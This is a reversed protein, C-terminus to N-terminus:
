RCIGARIFSSSLPIGNLRSSRASFEASYYDRVDIAIQPDNGLHAFIEAFIKERLRTTAIIDSRFGLKPSAGSLRRSLLYM